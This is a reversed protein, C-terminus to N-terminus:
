GARDACAAPSVLAAARCSERGLCTHKGVAGAALRTGVQTLLVHGDVQVFMGVAGKREGNRGLTASSTGTPAEQWGRPPSPGESGVGAHDGRHWVAGQRRGPSM